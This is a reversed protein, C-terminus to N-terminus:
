LNDVFSSLRTWLNVFIEHSSLPSALPDCITFFSDLWLINEQFICLEDTFGLESPLRHRSLEDCVTNSIGAIHTIHNVHLFSTSAVRM